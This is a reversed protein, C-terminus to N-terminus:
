QSLKDAIEAESADVLGDSNSDLRAFETREGLFELLSVDGDDNRDMKRFWAPGQLEAKVKPISPTRMTERLQSGSRSVGRFIELSLRQPIESANLFRDRDHDETKLIEVAGRLERPTLVRDFNTDMRTFLDQGQDSAELVLKTRAWTATREFYQELERKTVHRNNDADLLGIAPLGGNTLESEDLYGNTDADYQEFRPPDDAQAPDRNNRRFDIEAEGLYLKYGGDLKRRLRFKDAPGSTKTPEKSRNTGGGLRGLGFDLEVDPPLLARGALEQQSLSQDGDRDLAKLQETTLHLESLNSGCTLRGDRNQDYRSLLLEALRGGDGATIAVVVGGTPSDNDQHGIDSRPGLVLEQQTILGDDNFDRCLLAAEAGQLEDASLRGDRDQDLLPFLAPGAGHSALRQRIEISDRRAQAVLAQKTFSQSKKMAMPVSIGPSQMGKIGGSALTILSSAQTETLTGDRDVDLEDFANEVVQRHAEGLPIGDMRIHLRVIIPQTAGFLLLDQVDALSDNRTEPDILDNPEDAVASRSGLALLTALCLPQLRRRSFIRLFVLRIGM